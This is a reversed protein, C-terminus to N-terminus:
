LDKANYLFTVIQGRTCTRDPGFKNGGIGSTIGNESAWSIAKQFDSNSPMDSFAAMNEPELKGAARWIFTVAQARTCGKGPSFKGGGTGSTVDKEVAWSIARRFEESKPMDTFQDTVTVEPSGNARYLFTVIQDRTCTKGPSFKNGGTGATINNDVAWLVSKDFYDGEYVDSFGGVTPKSPKPPESPKSGAPAIRVYSAKEGSSTKPMEIFYNLTGGMISVSESEKANLKLAASDGEKVGGTLTLGEELSLNSHGPRSAIEQEYYGFACPFFTSKIIEPDTPSYYVSGWKYQDFKLLSEDYKLTLEGGGTIITKSGSSFPNNLYMGALSNKSGKTLIVKKLVGYVCRGNYGNLTLTESSQDFSWNKGSTDGKFALRHVTGDMDVLFAERGGASAFIPCLGVILCIALVLSLIRKKM